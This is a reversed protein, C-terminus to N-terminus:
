LSAKDRYYDRRLSRFLSCSTENSDVRSDRRSHHPYRCLPPSEETAKLPWNIGDRGRNENKGRHRTRTGNALDKCTDALRLMGSIEVCEYQAHERRSATRHLMRLQFSRRQERFPRRENRLSTSDDSSSSNDNTVDTIQPLTSSSSSTVVGQMEDPILNKRLEEHDKPHIFDYLSNGM